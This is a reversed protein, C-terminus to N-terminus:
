PSPGAESSLTGTGAAARRARHRRRSRLPSGSAIAAAASASPRSCPPPSTSSSSWRRCSAAAPRATRPAPAGGDHEGRLPPEGHQGVGRAGAARWAGPTRGRSSGSRGSWSRAPEGQRGFVAASPHIFSHIASTARSSCHPAMEYWGSAM